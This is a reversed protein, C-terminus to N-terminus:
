SVKIYIAFGSHSVGRTWQPIRRPFNGSMFQTRHTTLIAVQEYSSDEMGFNFVWENHHTTTLFKSTVMWQLIGGDCIVVWEDHHATIKSSLIVM